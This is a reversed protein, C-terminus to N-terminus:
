ELLRRASCTLLAIAIRRAQVRYLETRKHPLLILRRLRNTLLVSSVQGSCLRLPAPPDGHIRQCDVKISVLQGVAIRKAARSLGERFAKRLPWTV